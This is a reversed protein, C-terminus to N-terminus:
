AHCLRRPLPSDTLALEDLLQTLAHTKLTRADPDTWLNHLEHPDTRLDFLEGYPQGPYITVRFDETVLSRLRAGLYDEDYEILTSDRLKTNQGTLLPSLSLGPWPSAQGPSEPQPSTPGEPIPVGALDLITPAFDLHSTLSSIRTGAPFHQPFRAIFPTRTLGRYLFPGKNILFHDGMLDGHDSLFIVVTNDTLNLEDLTNLVRGVNHDILSVMGYTLAIIQRLHNDSMKMKRM